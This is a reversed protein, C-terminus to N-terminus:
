KKRKEKPSDFCTQFNLENKEKKARKKQKNPKHKELCLSVLAGTTQTKCVQNLIKTFSQLSLALVQQLSSRSFTKFSLCGGSCQESKLCYIMLLLWPM